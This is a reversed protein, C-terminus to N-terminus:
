DVQPATLVNRSETSDGDPVTTFSAALEPPIRTPRRTVLSIFAWETEAVAIVTEGRLMRYRRTSTIKKFDAIWTRILIEEGDFAPQLYEITHRRAVWGLRDQLYRETPWGEAASHAVGATQMWRLYNVNNVHGHEDIEEPRVTHRHEFIAPM